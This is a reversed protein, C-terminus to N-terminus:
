VHSGRGDPPRGGHQDLYEEVTMGFLIEDHYRGGAHHSRRRRGEEVFGLRRHLVLTPRIAEIAPEV